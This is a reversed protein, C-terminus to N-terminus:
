ASARGHHEARERDGTGGGRQEDEGLGEQARDGEAGDEHHQKGAGVASETSGAARAASPWRTSASAGRWQRCAALRAARGAVAPNQYRSARRTIREGPRKAAALAITSSASAVGLVPIAVVATSGFTTGMDEFSSPGLVRETRGV